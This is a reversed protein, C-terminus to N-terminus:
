SYIKIDEINPSGFIRELRKAPTLERANRLQMKSMDAANLGENPQLYQFLYNFQARYINASKLVLKSDFDHVM